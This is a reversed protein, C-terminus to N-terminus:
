FSDRYLYQIVGGNRILGAGPCSAANGQVRVKFRGVWAANLNDVIVPNNTSFRYYFTPTVTSPAFDFIQVGGPAGESRIVAVDQVDCVAHATGALGSVSAASAAIWTMLKNM